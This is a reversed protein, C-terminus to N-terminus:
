APRSLARLALRGCLAALPLEAGLAMAVATVFDGGPAATTTDFWADVVLLTATAAAALAHRRDGRAALLGTAILGLAELADLGVWAVPWHAATATAPLGTALVYLWPLLALGCAVLLWGARRMGRAPRPEEAEEHLPIVEARDFDEAGAVEEDRLVLQRMTKGREGGARGKM